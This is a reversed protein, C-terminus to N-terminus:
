RNSLGEVSTHDVLQSKVDRGNQEAAAFGHEVADLPEVEFGDLYKM